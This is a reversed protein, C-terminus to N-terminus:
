KSSTIFAQVTELTPMASQAGVKTTSLAAVANAFAVSDYISNGLSLSYAFGANFSDGAATTDVAAVSFGPVHTISNEDIIYAGNKGSKSIVTAAGKEVLKKAADKQEEVDSISKETLIGLETENPTIYDIYAYIDAPLLVAPAPDLIILKNAAKLKKILYLVTDLPIELQLLFIDCKILFDFQRDIFTTDIRSNSGPVVVIHNEGSGDVEIVAIGTSFNNETSVGTADVNNNLFVEKYETGYADNGIKGVMHVDGGLKGIAVAQNAGKGGPYTSFTKGLITEGPKPFNQVLVTLDMNISGIVCIKKMFESGIKLKEM